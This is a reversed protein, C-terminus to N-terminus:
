AFKLFKHPETNTLAGSNIHFSDTKKEFLTMEFSHDQHGMIFVCHVSIDVQSLSETDFIMVSPLSNSM